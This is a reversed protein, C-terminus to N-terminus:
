PHELPLSAGVEYKVSRTGKQLVCDCCLFSHSAGLVKGSQLLSVTLLKLGTLACVCHLDVITAWREAGCSKPCLDCDRSQPITNVSREARATSEAVFCRHM